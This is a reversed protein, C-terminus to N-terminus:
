RQEDKGGQPMDATGQGSGGAARDTPTERPHLVAVTRNEPVFYTAAVRQIDEPSVQHIAPLYSKIKQWGVAIEYRALLMAQYFLSDQSFVFATQLQNKAKRLAQESVPETKLRELQAVLAAEVDGVNKGRMPVASLYFLDPDVSLLSNGADASLALEQELVLEAYLRTSKGASLVAAIVELVYADPHGINPVHFGMLLAPQRADARVTVRREGVQPPERFNFLTPKEGTPIKGFAAAVTEFMRASDFDGVVVIFANGPQYYSRYYHRADEVTLRELDDMWGIVPWHYPTTQFATANMQESLLAQPNDVVRLRREEMVVNKETQFAQEALVLNQMRDAELDIVIGIRDAAMTAYYGSFDHATFANYQGGNEQITRTFAEGSVKPTGKFMMHEFVHALGTKGWADHRSGTRYWVQFTVVPAKHNEMLIVPMGNDLQRMTVQEFMAAASSVWLVLVSMMLIPWRRLITTM